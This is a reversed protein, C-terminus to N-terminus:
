HGHRDFVLPRVKKSALEQNCPLKAIHYFHWNIDGIERGLLEFHDLLWHAAKQWFRLRGTESQFFRWRRIDQHGDAKRCSRTRCHM